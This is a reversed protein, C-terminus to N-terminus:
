SGRYTSFGFPSILLPVHHHSSTDTVAFVVEVYPYFCAQGQAAFYAGTDFRIRYVGESWDGERLLPADLRGDENTQGSSLPTFGDIVQRELDISLCCAPRGSATNLVHTTLPNSMIDGM